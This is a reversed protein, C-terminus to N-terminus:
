SNNESQIGNRERARKRRLHRSAAAQERRSIRLAKLRQLEAEEEARKKAARIKRPAQKAAEEQLIDAKRKERKAPAAVKKNEEQIQAEDRARLAAIVNGSSLSAGNKNTVRIIGNEEM